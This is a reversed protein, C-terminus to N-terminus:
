EEGLSVVEWCELRVVGWEEGLCEEEWCEVLRMVGWDEGFCEVEWLSYVDERTAEEEVRCVEEPEELRAGVCGLARVVMGEELGV